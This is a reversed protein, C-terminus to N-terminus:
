EYKLEKIMRTRAYLEDFQEIKSKQTENLDRLVHNSFLSVWQQRQHNLYNQFFPVKTTKIQDGEMISTKEDSFIATSFVTKLITFINDWGPLAEKIEDSQLTLEKGDCYGVWFIWVIGFLSVM